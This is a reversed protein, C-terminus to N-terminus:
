LKVDSTQLLPKLMNCLAKSRGASTFVSCVVVTIRRSLHFLVWSINGHCCIFTQCGLAFIAHHCQLLAERHTVQLCPSDSPCQLWNVSHHACVPFHTLCRLRTLKAPFDRGVRANRGADKQGGLRCKTLLM